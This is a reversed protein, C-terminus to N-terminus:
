IQGCGRGFLEPLGGRRAPVGRAPAEGGYPLSKSSQRDLFVGRIKAFHEAAFEGSGGHLAHAAGEADFVM